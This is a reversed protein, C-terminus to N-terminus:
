QDPRKEAVSRWEFYSNLFKQPTNLAQKMITLPPLPKGGAKSGIHSFYDELGEGSFNPEIRQINLIFQEVTLEEQKASPEGKEKHAEVEIQTAPDEAPTAGFKPDEMEGEVYATSVIDSFLRRALRSLCRAFLMDSPFKEWPGGSRVLGARRAEDISFSCVNEERTDHRVGKLICIQDTAEVIEIKHGAKRIMSNMMRPSLEVKGQIVNMGGFLCTMPPLGLEQAFMAICFIGAEGGMKDLLKSSFAHKAIKELAQIQELSVIQNNM